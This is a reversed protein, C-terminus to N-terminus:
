RRRSSGVVFIEASKSPPLPAVSWIASDPNLTVVSAIRTDIDLFSPKRSIPPPTPRSEYSVCSLMLAVMSSPPLLPVAAVENACRSAVVTSERWIASSSRRLCAAILKILRATDGAFLARTADEYNRLDGAMTTMFRYAREQGCEIRRVLVHAQEEIGVTERYRDGHVDGDAGVDDMHM